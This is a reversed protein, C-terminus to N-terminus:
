FVQNEPRPSGSKFFEIVTVSTALFVGKGAQVLERGILYLTDKSEDETLANRLILGGFFRSIQCFVEYYSIADFDM